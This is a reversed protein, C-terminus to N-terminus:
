EEKPKEVFLEDYDSLNEKLEDFNEEIYEKYKPFLHKERPKQILLVVIFVSAIFAVTTYVGKILPIYFATFFNSFLDPSFLGIYISFDRYIVLSAFLVIIKSIIGLNFMVLLPVLTYTIRSKNSLFIFYRLCLLSYLLSIFNIVGLLYVDIINKIYFPTDCNLLNECAIIPLMDYFYLSFVWSFIALLFVSVRIFKSNKTILSVFFTLFSVLLLLTVIQQFVNLDKYLSFFEFYSYNTFSGYGFIGTMVILIYVFSLVLFLNKEIKMKLEKKLVNKM